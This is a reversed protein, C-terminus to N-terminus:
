RSRATPPWSRPSSSSARSGGTPGDTWKPGIQYRERDFDEIKARIRLTRVPKYSGAPLYILTGSIKEAGRDDRSRGCLTFTGATEFPIPQMPEVPGAVTLAPVELRFTCQRPDVKKNTAWQRFHDSKTDDNDVRISTLPVSCTAHGSLTKEDVHLTCGVASSVATIREGIAADFVASFTNNGAEPDAKLETEARVVTGAFLACALLVSLVSRRNLRNSMDLMPRGKAFAARALRITARYTRLYAGCDRCARAHAELRAREAAGLTGAVLDDAGDALERCTPGRMPNTM